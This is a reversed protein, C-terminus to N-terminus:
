PVTSRSMPNKVKHATTKATDSHHLATMFEGSWNIVHARKDKKIMEDRKITCATVGQKREAWGGIIEALWIFASEALLRNNNHM